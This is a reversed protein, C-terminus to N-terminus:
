IFLYYAYDFTLSRDINVGHFYKRQFNEIENDKSLIYQMLIQLKVDGPNHELASKIIEKADENNRIKRIRFDEGLNM